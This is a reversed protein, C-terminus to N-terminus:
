DNKKVENLLREFFWDLFVAKGKANLHALDTYHSEPLNAPFQWVELNHRQSLYDLNEKLQRHFDSPQRDNLLKSRGIDLLVVRTGQSKALKIFEIYSESLEPERITFRKALLKRWEEGQKVRNIQKLEDSTYHSAVQSNEIYLGKKKSNNPSSISPKLLTRIAQRFLSLLRPEQRPWYVTFTESDLFVWDPKAALIPSLLVSFEEPKGNNKTMRVLDMSVGRALAEKETLPDFPFAFRLLSGGVAVVKIRGSAQQLRDIAYSDAPLVEVKRQHQWVSFGGILLGMVVVTVGWYRLPLLCENNKMYLHSAM